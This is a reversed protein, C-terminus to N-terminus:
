QIKYGYDIFIKKAKESLIFEYFAKADQNEKAHSLIVIGQEIPTYLKADVESWNEGEKFRKLKPSYLSSKAIFGVDVVSITYSLTQAASEGYVIKEKIKDLIAINELAEFSAKGYPATKPNAVAIKKIAENELLKLGQSFDRKKVSLYALSGQAYVLPKSLALEDKYLAEPYKMNASMFVDYPAGNKIQATLKGSSGVIVKIGVNPHLLSFEKKIAEIAYSVNASLALNITSGFLSFTFLLLFLLIKKIM